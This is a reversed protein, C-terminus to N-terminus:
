YNDGITETMDLSTSRLRSMETVVSIEKKKEELTGKSKRPKKRAFIYAFNDVSFTYNDCGDIWVEVTDDDHIYQLFSLIIDEMCSRNAERIGVTDIVDADRYSFTYQCEHKHALYEITSYIDEREKKTLKKSDKIGPLTDSLSSFREKQMM